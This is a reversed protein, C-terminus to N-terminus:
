PLSRINPLCTHAHVVIEPQTCQQRLNNPIKLQPASTGLMLGTHSLAHTRWQAVMGNSLPLKYKPKFHYFKPNWSSAHTTHWQDVEIAVNQPPVGLLMDTYELFFCIGKSEMTRTSQYNVKKNKCMKSPPLLPIGFGKYYSM